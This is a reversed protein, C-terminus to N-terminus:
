KRCKKHERVELGRELLRRIIEADSCRKFEDLSRLKEIGAVIEDTLAVSMRKMKTM